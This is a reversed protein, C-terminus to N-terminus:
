TALSVVAVLVLVLSFLIGISIRVCTAWTSSLELFNLCRYRLCALVIRLGACVASRDCSGVFDSNLRVWAGMVMIVMM